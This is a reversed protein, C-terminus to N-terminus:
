KWKVYINVRKLYVTLIIGKGHWFFDVFHSLFYPDM